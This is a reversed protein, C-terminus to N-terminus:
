RSGRDTSSYMSEVQSERIRQGSSSGGRVFKRKHNRERNSM